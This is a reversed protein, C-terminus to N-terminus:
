LHFPLNFIMGFLIELIFLNISFVLLSILSFGAIRENPLAFLPKIGMIFVILGYIGLTHFILKNSLTFFRLSSIMLYICASISVLLYALNFNKKGKFAGSIKNVAWATITIVLLITILTFAGHRFAENITAQSIFLISILKIISVILTIPLVFMLLFPIPKPPKRKVEEWGIKPRYLINLYTFIM